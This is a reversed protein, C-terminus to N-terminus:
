EQKYVSAALETQATFSDKAQDFMWEFRNQVNGKVEYSFSILCNNGALPSVQWGESEVLQGSERAKDVAQEVWENITMGTHQSPMQRLRDMALYFTDAEQAKPKEMLTMSLYSGIGCVLITAVVIITSGM